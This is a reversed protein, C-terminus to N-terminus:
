SYFVAHFFVSFIVLLVDSSLCVLRRYWPIGCLIRLRLFLHRFIQGRHTSRLYQYRFRDLVNRPRRSHVSFTKSGPRVLGCIHDLSNSCFQNTLCYMTTNLSHFTSACVYPPVTLLQSIATNFGFRLFPSHYTHAGRGWM